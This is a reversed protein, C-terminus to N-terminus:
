ISCWCRICCSCCLLSSALWRCSTMYNTFVSILFFRCGTSFFSIMSLVMKPSSFSLLLGSCKFFKSSMISLGSVFFFMDSMIFNSLISSIRIFILSFRNLILNSPSPNSLWFGITYVFPVASTLCGPCDPCGSTLVSTLGACLFSGRKLSVQFM